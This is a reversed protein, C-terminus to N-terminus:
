NILFIQILNKMYNLIVECDSKTKFQDFLFYEKKIFEYNYIEGNVFIIIDENDNIFPQSGNDSGIISLRHFIIELQNDKYSTTEDPGRHSIDEALKNLNLNPFNFKGVFGCVKILGKKLKKDKLVFVEDCIKIINSNHSVIILTFEKKLDILTNIINKETERDLSSTPEDLIIIRKKHYLARAIGLRQVQGGSLNAGSDSIIKNLDITEKNINFHSNNICDLVKVKSPTSDLTVNEAISKNMLFVKQPVFSFFKSLSQVNNKNQIKGDIYIKGKQIPLLGMLNNVLTTKGM